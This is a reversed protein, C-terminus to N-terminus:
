RKRTWFREVYANSAGLEAAYSKVDEFDTDSIQSEYVAIDSLKDQFVKTVDVAVAQYISPLVNQTYVAVESPGGVWAGYPLDEYYVTEQGTLTAERVVERVFYHDVNNGIALPCLILATPYQELVETLREKLECFAEDLPPDELLWKKQPYRLTIDDLKLDLRGANVRQVYNIDESKRLSHVLEPTQPNINALPAYVSLTFCNVITLKTTVMMRVLGGCSLAIDDPHPSIALVNSNIPVEFNYM